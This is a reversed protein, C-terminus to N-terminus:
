RAGGFLSAQRPSPARSLTLWEAQQESFTRGRGEPSPLRHHHWGELPLPEAESVAVVAGAARWREALNLVDPRPLTYGYGTTGQYDPDVYVFAGPIPEVTRADAHHVEVRSLDLAELAAILEPLRRNNRRWTRGDPAVYDRAYDAAYAEAENFGHAVWEGDRVFVPKRAFSWFQLMAWYAVRVTSGQPPGGDVADQWLKRPELDEWARLWSLVERRGRPDSWVRWAEGWPGAEVLVVRGGGAGGGSHLGMADLIADAYARKGGQYPIPPKGTPSLWRLSVAASGACLEVLTTM